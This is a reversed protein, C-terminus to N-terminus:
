EKVAAIILRESNKENFETLEYDGWLHIVKLGTKEILGKLEKFSILQVREFFSHDTEKDSFSIKKQIFGAEVKKEIKFQVGDVIKSGDECIHEIVFSANFFDLIFVGNKKLNDKAHQLVHQNEKINEFYAFSTFLNLVCDFFNVRFPKRMDHVFFSLSDSENKKACDISLESIDIGTVNFGLKELFISHRGKGCALDLVESGKKLNLKRILNGLFLEAEKEDRDKYLVHYYPSDFWNQFWDKKSNM